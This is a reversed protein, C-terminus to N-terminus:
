EGKVSGSRVDEDIIDIAGKVMDRGVDDKDIAARSSYSSYLSNRLTLTHPVKMYSIILGAFVFNALEFLSVFHCIM